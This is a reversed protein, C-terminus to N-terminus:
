LWIIAFVLLLMIVIGVKRVARHAVWYWRAWYLSYELQMMDNSSNLHPYEGEPIPMNLFKCLPEWGQGLDFELLNGNPVTCRVNNNHKDFSELLAPYATPKYPIHGQSSISTTRNLLALYPGMFEPDLFCLIFWSRWSLIELISKQMSRLWAERPRLTLIVKANPYAAILEEVFLCCPDDSM